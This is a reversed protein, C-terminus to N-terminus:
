SSATNAFVEGDGQNPPLVIRDNQVVAMEDIEWGTPMTVFPEFRAIRDRGQGAIVM